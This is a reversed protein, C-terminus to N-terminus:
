KDLVVNIVANVDSVDVNGSGNVDAKPYDAASAKELVINILINVDTVDVVGDGNVDGYVEPDDKKEGQTATFLLEGAPIRLRIVAERYNVGEPLPAAEVVLDTLESWEGEEIVDELNVNLWEPLASGDALSVEIEEAPSYTFMQATYSEGEVAFNHEGTENTYNWLFQPRVADIFISIGTKREGSTFFNNIGQYKMSGDSQTRGLYCLEGYGEDYLDGSMSLTFTSVNENNYGTLVILIPFDIEPTVESELGTEEEIDLMTFPLLGVTINNTIFENPDVTFVGTAIKEGPVIFASGSEKYEPISEQKYVTVTLDFPQAGPTFALSQFQVGVQRLLYPYDPKEFAMAVADVGSFNRGFWYGKNGGDADKAGTLGAYGTMSNQVQNSPYRDSQAARFKSSLWMTRDATNTYATKYDTKALLTSRYKSVLSKNPATGTTKWASLTYEAYGESGQAMLMPVTDVESKFPVSLTPGEAYYEESVRTSRNLAYYSWNYSVNEGMHLANQEFTWTKFPAGVLYPSYYVASKYNDNDTTTVCGYFVGAPRKYFAKPTGDDLSAKVAVKKPRSGPEAMEAYEENVTQAVSIGTPASTKVVSKSRQATTTAMMSSACVLASALLLAKKM